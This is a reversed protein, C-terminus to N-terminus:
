NESNQVVHPQRSFPQAPFSPQTRTAARVGDCERTFHGPQQCRRCIVSDRNSSHSRQQSSQLRSISQTLLNLQEQQLKLMERMESLESVHPPSAVVQPGSRVVYQLGLMSPVSNSRGRVGGPLGEREWRIEEAQVELLTATPQRRVLQKLERRLSCDIVHEVFQDRLFVEAHPM